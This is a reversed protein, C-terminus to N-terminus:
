RLMELNLNHEVLAERIEERVIEAEKNKEYKGKTRLKEDIDKIVFYLEIAKTFVHFRESEDPDDLNFEITAKM